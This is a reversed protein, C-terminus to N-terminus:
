YAEFLFQDYLWFSALLFFHIIKIIQVYKDLFVNLSLKKIKGM